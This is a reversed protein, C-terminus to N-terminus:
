LWLLTAVSSIHQRLSRPPNAEKTPRCLRHAFLLSLYAGAHSETGGPRRGFVIGPGMLREDSWPRIFSFESRRDPTILTADDKERAALCWYEHEAM